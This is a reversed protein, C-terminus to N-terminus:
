RACRKVKVGGGGTDTKRALGSELFRRNREPQTTGRPEDQSKGRQVISIRGISTQWGDSKNLSYGYEDAGPEDDDPIVEPAHVEQTAGLLVSSDRPERRAFRKPPDGQSRLSHEEWNSVFVLWQSKTRRDVESV